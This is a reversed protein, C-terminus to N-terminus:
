PSSRMTTMRKSGSPMTPSKKRTARRKPSTRGSTCAFAATPPAALARSPPTGHADDQAGRGERFPESAELGHVRHVELQVLALDEAHDAGVAGSLRRQEAHDRAGDRGGRAAHEQLALHD